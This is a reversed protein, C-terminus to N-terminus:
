GERRCSAYERLLAGFAKVVPAAAPATPGIDEWPKYHYKSWRIGCSGTYYHYLFPGCASATELHQFGLDAAALDYGILEAVWHFDPLGNRRLAMTQAMWGPLIAALDMATIWIPVGVPQLLEPHASM